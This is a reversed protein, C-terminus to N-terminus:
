ESVAAKVKAALQEAFMQVQAADQGEVMVRILPETGSPRLLVRGNAGMVEEVEKVAATIVPDNDLDVARERRVNIMVQPCVELDSLLEKLSKGSDMVAFFVKLAAVIGDGTSAVDACIVHGSSEGGLSWGKEKMMESVYRDGVKARGFPIGKAQMALELGLNSMLTGAVGACSGQTRLQDMAIVYLIADGDVTTGDSDVFLLRDGDGDFAVGIDAGHEVVAASIAAPSTSGFGNNINLGDPKAGIEIVDAGLERLVLPAVYYTAGHACDVVVKKGALDFGTPVTSKCYEIYRGRADEIRTVKGLEASDVTVMPKDLEAEIAYEIDDPLKAGEASFFKIGNDYFPNHSASIVIGATCHFTRTLYAIAPTPMPGILAVNVGAAVLGAELASEFMYGSIRTDKGIIIRPVTSKGAALRSFVRGVAWGLKLIFEPNIAGSGVKGRIGDTGFYQKTM